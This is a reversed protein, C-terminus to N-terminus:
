IIFVYHLLIIYDLLRYIYYYIIISIYLDIYMSYKYQSNEREELERSERRRSKRYKRLIGYFCM